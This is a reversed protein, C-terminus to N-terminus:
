SVLEPVWAIYIVKVVVAKMQGLLPAGHDGDDAGDGRAGVVRWLGGVATV